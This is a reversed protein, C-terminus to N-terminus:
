LQTFLRWIRATHLEITWPDSADLELGSEVLLRFSDGEEAIYLRYSAGSLFEALMQRSSEPIELSDEAVSKLVVRNGMTRGLDVDDDRGDM